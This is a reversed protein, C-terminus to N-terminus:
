AKGQLSDFTQLLETLAKRSEAQTPQSSRLASLANDIAKDLRHWDGAARPKLGAEAADWSLELDKVRAKAAELDGKDVMAAVDAAISRFANLDGLKSPSAVSQNAGASTTPQAGAAHSGGGKSCGAVLAIGCAACVAFALRALFASQTKM